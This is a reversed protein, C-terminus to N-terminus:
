IWCFSPRGYSFVEFWKMRLNTCCCVLVGALLAVARKGDNGASEDGEFWLTDLPKPKEMFTKSCAGTSVEGPFM